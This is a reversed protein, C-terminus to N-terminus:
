LDGLKYQADTKEWEEYFAKFFKVGLWVDRSGTTARISHMSLQPIGMDVSRMGTKSSLTPGITGGSRSDNRIQFYQLKNDTNRAIEEVFSKSVSDTTMHGNPDCSITLGVNLKPKHHELYVNVFNPNVAHIVDASVLFSNAYTRRKDEDDSGYVALIRDVTSELLGGAAGQRSLSGVEENDFLAVVNVVGLEKNVDASELFGHLAAYSCIKDDIRPCFLLEKDLGGVTGFQTDFLELDFDLIDEVAVGINKAIVRLLKISHKGFLPSKKEAETPEDPEGEGVLGIIPVQQTEPNFPGNQPLGFHPALTPIRAIPYPVHALKSTIAGKADRVIVKGGIGLDRDWWTPGSLSSAYPAVGLLNYGEVPEKISFPKLKTALADIHAGIFGFGNGPKFNKGIVFASLSSGNRTTYFKTGKPIIDSWSDRESIKQFGAQELEKSLYNVAHYVTPSTNMFDLFKDTYEEPTSQPNFPLEPSFKNIVRPEAPAASASAVAAGDAVLARNIKKSLAKNVKRASEFSPNGSMDAFVKM